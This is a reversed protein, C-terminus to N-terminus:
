HCKITTAVSNSFYYRSNGKDDDCVGGVTYLYGGSGCSTSAPFDPNTPDAPDYFCNEGTYDGGRDNIIDIIKYSPLDACRSEYGTCGLSGEQTQSSDCNYDFSGNDPRANAFYATQGPKVNANSDYCDNAASTLDKQRIWDTGPSTTTDTVQRTEVGTYGDHDADLAWLYGKGFSGGTGTFAISGGDMTIGKGPNFVLKGSSGISITAGEDLEINGNEIGYVQSIPCSQNTSINVDKLPWNTIGDSLLCPDSWALTLSNKNGDSDEARFITIYDRVSTDKVLWSGEFVEKEDNTESAKAIKVSSSSNTEESAIFALRREKAEEKNLMILENKDNVMVEAFRPDLDRFSVTGTKKLEVTTTGNDTEIEAIVNKIGNVGSVVIRMSQTDGPHVKLPTISGEWFKIKSDKSNAVRFDTDNENLQWKHGDKNVFYDETKSDANKPTSEQNVNKQGTLLNKGTVSHNNRFVAYIVIAAVLVFAM